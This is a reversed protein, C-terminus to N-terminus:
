SRAARRPTRSRAPRGSRCTSSGPLRLRAFNCPRDTYFVDLTANLLAPNGDAGKAVAADKIKFVVKSKGLAAHKDSIVLTQGTVGIDTARAASTALLLMAGLLARRKEM